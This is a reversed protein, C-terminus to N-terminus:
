IPAPQYVSINFNEYLICLDAFLPFLTKKEKIEQPVHHSIARLEIFEGLKKWYRM